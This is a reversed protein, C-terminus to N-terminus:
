GGARHNRIDMRLGINPASVYGYRDVFPLNDAFLRPCNRPTAALGQHDDWQAWKKGLAAKPFLWTRCIM